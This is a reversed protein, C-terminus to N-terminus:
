GSSPLKMLELGCFLQGCEILGKRSLSILTIRFVCDEDGHFGGTTKSTKSSFALWLKYM